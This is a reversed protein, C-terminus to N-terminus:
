SGKFISPADAPSVPLPAPPQVTGSAATTPVAASAGAEAPTTTLPTLPKAPANAPHDHANVLRNIDRDSKGSPPASVVTPRRRREAAALKAKQEPSLKQYDKWARERAQAPLDQSAQYNERAVRREEATMNAWQTMREHLRKQEEPSMKPFRAAIRLWKRKRADSFGDWQREFPALAEHQQASLRAWSLPSAPALTPFANPLSLSVAPQAPPTTGSAAVPAAAIPAPTEFFRPYTAAYAVVLAIVSGFFIALGRKQM